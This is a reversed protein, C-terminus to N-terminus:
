RVPHLRFRGTVSVGTKGPDWNRNRNELVLFRLVGTETGPKPCFGPFRVPNVGRAMILRTMEMLTKNRREVIGNQQPKYPM